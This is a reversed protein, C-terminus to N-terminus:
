EYPNPRPDEERQGWHDDLEEPDAEEQEAEMELREALADYEEEVIGTILLEREGPTLMPLAKQILTGRTWLEYGIKDVLLKWKRGSMPCTGAVIYLGDGADQKTHKSPM